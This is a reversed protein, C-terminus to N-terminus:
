YGGVTTHHLWHSQAMEFATGTMTSTIPVLKASGAPSRHFKFGSRIGEARANSWHEGKLTPGQAPLHIGSTVIRHPLSELILTLAGSSVRGVTHGYTAPFPGGRVAADGQFRSIQSAAQALTQFKTVCTWGQVRRPALSAM